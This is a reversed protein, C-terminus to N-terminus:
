WKLTQLHMIVALIALDVLVYGQSQYENEYPSIFRRSLKLIFICVPIQM